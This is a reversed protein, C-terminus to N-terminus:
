IMSEHHIYLVSNISVPLFLVSKLFSRIVPELMQKSEPQRQNDRENRYLVAKLIDGLFAVNSAAAMAARAEAEAVAEAAGADSLFSLFTQLSVM